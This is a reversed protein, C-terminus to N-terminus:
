PKQAGCEQVWARDHALIRAKLTSSIVALDEPPVKIIGFRTCSSDIVQTKYEVAAPKTPTDACATLAVLPVMTLIAKM